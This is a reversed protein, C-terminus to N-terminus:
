NVFSILHWVNNYRDLGHKALSSRQIRSNLNLVWLFVWNTVCREKDWSVGLFVPDIIKVRLFIIHAGRDELEISYGGGGRAPNHDLNPIHPSPNANANPFLVFNQSSTKGIIIYNSITSDYIPPSPFIALPIGTIGPHVPVRSHRLQMTYFHRSIELEDIRCQCFSFSM